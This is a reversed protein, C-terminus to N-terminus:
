IKFFLEILYVVIEFAILLIIIRELFHDKRSSLWEQVFSVVENVFDIKYELAEFREEIDYLYVLREYLGELLPNDWVIDPKDVIYLHNLISKKIELVEAWLKLMHHSKFKIKAKKLFEKHFNVKELIIDVKDEFYELSVSMSLVLALVEVADLSFKSFVVKGDKVNFFKDQSPNIEILYRELVLVTGMRKFLDEYDKNEFWVLVISGKEFVFIYKKGDVEWCYWNEVKFIKKINLREKLEEVQKLEQLKLAWVELKKM